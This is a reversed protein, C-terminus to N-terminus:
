SGVVAYFERDTLGYFPLSSSVNEQHNAMDLDM